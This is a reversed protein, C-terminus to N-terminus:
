LEDNSKFFTEDQEFKPVQNYYTINSILNLVRNNSILPYHHYNDGSNNFDVCTINKWNNCVWKYGFAALTGDGGSFIRIPRKNFGNSFNLAIATKVGSNMLLTTKVGIDSPPESLTEETIEFIKRSHENSLLHNMLLKRLDKGKYEEGDPGYAITADKFIFENPLIAHVGPMQEFCTNLSDLHIFPAFPHEKMWLNYLDQVFGTFAPSILIVHSIFKEKWEITSHKTLFQQIMSGGQSFGIIVVKTDNNNKYAKEILQKFDPWFSESFTPAIRWDYAAVFLDKKVEWGLKKFHEVFYVFSSGFKKHFLDTQIIYSASEDGGFDHIYVSSNPWDKIKGKEDIFSTMLKLMCNIKHPLLYSARLWLLKDNESKPCYWPLNTNNYTIWLNSGFFPPLLVVPNRYTIFIFLM